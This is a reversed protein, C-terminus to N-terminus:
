KQLQTGDVPMPQERPLETPNPKQKPEEKQAPMADINFQEQIKPSACSACIVTSNPVIETVFKAACMDCLYKKGKQQEKKEILTAKHINFVFQQGDFDVEM